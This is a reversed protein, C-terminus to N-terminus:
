FVIGIRRDFIVPSLFVLALFLWEIAKDFYKIKM